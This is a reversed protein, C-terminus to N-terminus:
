ASKTPKQVDEKPVRAAPVLPTWFSWFPALLPIKAAFKSFTLILIKKATLLQLKSTFCIKQFDRGLCFNNRNKKKKKSIAPRAQQKSSAAQQKSAQYSTASWGLTWNVWRPSEFRFVSRPIEWFCRPSGLPPSSQGHLRRSIHRGSAGPGVWVWISRTFPCQIEFVEVWAGFPALIM